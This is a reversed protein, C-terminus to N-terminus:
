SAAALAAIEVAEAEPVAEWSESIRADDSTACPSAEASAEMVLRSASEPASASDRQSTVNSRSLGAEHVIAPDIEAVPIPKATTRSVPAGPVIM